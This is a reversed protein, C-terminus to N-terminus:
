SLLNEGGVIHFYAILYYIDLGNLVGEFAYCFLNIFYLYKQALILRLVRRSGFYIFLKKQFREVDKPRLDKTQLVAGFTFNDVKNLKRLDIKNNLKDIINLSETKPLPKFVFFAPRDVDLEKALEFTQNLTEKTEGPGGIMFYGTITLRHRKCLKIIERIKETSIKKNYVENRIRDNGSEVGIRVVKCNSKALLKITDEDLNDARAFCSYPLVKSLGQKIYENCFKRVWKKDFTFVQDFLQALGVGKDHYKNWQYKIEKVYERPDRVRYHNGPVAKRMPYSSCNTCSYPCGRTGIFYMMNLFYFYKHIDPFLDWDPIPLKDVDQILERKPNKVIKGNEKAWIGKIEKVSTGKELANLYENLAFEGDGICVADVGPIALTEDPVLTAHYGGCIIPLQYYTKIENIIGNVYRMYLSSCTIGIVDPSHEKIGQHLHSRWKKRYFGFDLIAAKHNTRKNVYTALTVLGIDLSSYDGGLTPNILLIKV